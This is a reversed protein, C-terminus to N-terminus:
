EYQITQLLDAMKEIAQELPKKLMGKILPNLDAKMTLKMKCNLENIPLLQIWFNFPVPSKAAAFKITKPEERDVITFKVSGVSAVTVTMSDSDFEVNQVKDGKMSDKLAELNEPNSLVDYVTQQPYPIGRVTSEFKTSM